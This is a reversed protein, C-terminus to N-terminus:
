RRSACTAVIAAFEHEAPINASGVRILNQCRNAREAHRRDFYDAGLEHYTVGDRMLDKLCRM